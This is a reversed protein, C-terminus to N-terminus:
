AWPSTKPDYAELEVLTRAPDNLWAVAVARKSDIDDLQTDMAEIDDLKALESSNITGAIQKRLLKVAKSISKKGGSLTDAHIASKKKETINNVQRTRRAALSERTDGDDLTNGADLWPIVREAYFPHGVPIFCNTETDFVGDKAKRYRM